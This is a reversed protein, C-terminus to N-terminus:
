AHQEDPDQPTAAAPEYLWPSMFFRRANREPRTQLGAAPTSAQGVAGCTHLMSQFFNYIAVVEARTRADSTTPPFFAIFGTAIFRTTSFPTLPMACQGIQVWVTGATISTKPLRALTDIPCRHGRHPAENSTAM